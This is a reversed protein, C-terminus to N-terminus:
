VLTGSWCKLFAIPFKAARGICFDYVVGPLADSASRAYAWVYARKTKGSDPDLLNVRTEDAHLVAAGLVFTRNAEYLADLRRRGSGVWGLWGALTSRPTHVGSRANIQEQRCYSRHDIFRNVLVHALLGEAPMGKEIIHPEVLEQMLAQCSKCAWKGRVHRHVFFQTLVIDLKKSLFTQFRQFKSLCRM